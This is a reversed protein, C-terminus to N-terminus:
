QNVEWMLNPILLVQVFMWINLTNLDYYLSLAKEKIKTDIILDIDKKTEKFDFDYSSEIDLLNKIQSWYHKNSCLKEYSIFYM